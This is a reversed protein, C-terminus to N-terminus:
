KSGHLSAHMSYEVGGGGGGGWGVGETRHADAELGHVKAHYTVFSFLLHKELWAPAM